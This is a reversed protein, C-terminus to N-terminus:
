SGPVYGRQKDVVNRLPAGALWRRLNDAFVAGLADRWGVLDGSMHPTILVNPLEWLPSSEPLPEAAFVDLAAAGIRGHRLGEALAPEDVLQGRGVNIFWTDERLLGVRRADIMGDTEPTLPACLAVADAAPLAADLEDMGVIHGFEDDARASRAAVTVEMGVAQALRGIERGIGGAGIM